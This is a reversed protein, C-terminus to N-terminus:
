LFNSRKKLIEYAKTSVAWVNEVAVNKYAEFAGVHRQEQGGMGAKFRAIGPDNKFDVGGVDYQKMGRSNSVLVAKWWAVYSASCAYGTESSAALLLIGTDGLNASVQVSVPEDRRYAVVLSMKEAEPLDRQTKAFVQPHVGKFGKKRVLDVYFGELTQFHADDTSERAEVGAAEAKHLLRRWSQHLGRRLEEASRGLNVTMTHYPSVSPNREFGGDELMAVLKRSESNEIVNPLVRLVNVRSGLYAERLLGFVEASCGCTGDKKLILPGWQLYGVKLGLPTVRRIRVHSMAVAEGTQDTIVIRSLEQGDTDARVQQYSWTQYISYDAFGSAYQQWQAREIRDILVNYSM